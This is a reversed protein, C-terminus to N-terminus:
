PTEGTPPSVTEEERAPIQEVKKSVLLRRVTNFFYWMEKSKLLFSLFLYVFSGALIVFVTLILLNITYRTDLVFKDLPLSGPDIKGLFSLKKIWASRDFIKLLFYMAFGAGFSSVVSKLFPLVREISYDDKLKPVILLYLGVAQVFAGLSFAAALGWSPLGIVRVFFFAAVINLIISVISVIVPTKTDRLAYFARALIASLTQFVISLAFASVVKGTQVTAEWTFIDTGFVLRVIPIRLVILATATPLVLFSAQYLTSYLTKKFDEEKDALRSLAPLAAKAISTGFLGVPLLQITNGLTFYTYSATSILSALFLEFTKAIQIFSVEIVRPLALKGIQKVARNINIKFSFRFGLKWALPLQVAFHMFAGIVVGLTPALLGLQPALLWTAVIIGLNYFLPAVAPILFRRSSELVSTLVYSIVFFGQAAFLIRTLVIITEQESPKFGPALIGYLFPSGAIVFAALFLFATLGLNTITSAVEWAEKRGKSLTKTFVPIFASSFAGFVLVEFVLDPLRFAAFFLSLDDPAFYHALTRQRLLGLIRSAVVMLMIITAASLVSSQASFLLKKSRSFLKEM